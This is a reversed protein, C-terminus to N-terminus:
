LLCPWPFIEEIIGEKVSWNSSKLEQQGILSRSNENILLFSPNNSAIKYRLLIGKIDINKEQSTIKKENESLNFDLV